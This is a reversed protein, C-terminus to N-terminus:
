FAIISIGQVFMPDRGSSWAKQVIDIDTVPDFRTGSRGCFKIWTRATWTTTSSWLDVQWQLRRGHLQLCCAACQPCPRSLAAPDPHRHVPHRPRRRSELSRSHRTLRLSRASELSRRRRRHRQAARDRRGAQAPPRLHSYSRKSVPGDQRKLLAPVVDDSYYGMWEGFPGEPETTRSPKAKSSSRPTPPSPFAPSRGKSSKSRNAASAAPLTMSQCEPHCRAPPSYTSYRTQGYVIAFKCSQGREFYKDRHIRGHKGEASRAASPKATTSKAATPASIIGTPTPTKPSACTPPASIATPTRKTISRYLSRLM